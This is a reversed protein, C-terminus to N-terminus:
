CRSAQLVPLRAFEGFREELHKITTNCLLERDTAFEKGGEDKGSLTFGRFTDEEPDFEERFGKLCTGDEVRLRDLHRVVRELADIVDSVTLDNTQFMMSMHKLESDFDVIFHLTIVMRYSTLELCMNWTRSKDLLAAKENALHAVVEGKTLVATRRDRCVVKLKEEGEEDVVGIVKAKWRAETFCTSTFCSGDSQSTLSVGAEKMSQAELAKVAVVWNTLAARAAREKSAMWRIGHMKGFKVLTESVVAAIDEMDLLRKASVNFFAYLDKLLQMCVCVCTLAGNVCICM